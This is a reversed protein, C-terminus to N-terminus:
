YYQSLVSFDSSDDIIVLTFHATFIGINFDNIKMIAKNINNAHVDEINQLCM